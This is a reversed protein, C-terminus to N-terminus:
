DFCFCLCCLCVLMVVFADDDFGVVLVFCFVVSPAVDGGYFCRSVLCVVYCM